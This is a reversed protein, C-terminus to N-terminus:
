SYSLFCFIEKTNKGKGIIVLPKRAESLVKVAKDVSSPDALCKPPPPCRGIPRHFLILGIM